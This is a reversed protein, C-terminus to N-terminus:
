DENYFVVAGFGTVWDERAGPQEGSTTYALVTGTDAGLGKAAQMAVLIAGEGCACTTLNPIGSSMQQLITSRVGRPDLGAIAELTLADIAYAIENTPFHSLDSSAVIIAHRRPLLDILANALADVDAKYQNGMIIPVIKCKPCTHQIFPIEAEIPHECSFADMNATIRKDAAVLARALDEDVQVKGLPTEWAGTTWVAIPMALPRFHDVAIVVAVEYYHGELQRFGHAAVEGSINYSGHPVVLAIPRGGLNGVGTLFGDLTRELDDRDVPYLYRENESRHIEEEGSEPYSLSQSPEHQTAPLVEEAICVPFIILILVLWGLEWGSRSIKFNLLVKV